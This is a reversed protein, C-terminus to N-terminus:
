AGPVVVAAVAPLTCDHGSMDFSAKYADGNPFALNGWDADGNNKMCINFEPKLSTPDGSVAKAPNVIGDWIVDPVVVPTLVEGVTLLILGGLPGTPHEHTGSMTNDHINITDPDTVYAADNPAGIIQYSAIGISMTDHTAITNGYIEVNHAALLVMGSGTPVSAVINGSPAFNETNNDVIMNDFVRTEAANKIQLGPLNFVLIGGTNHTATNGYVDARNTNEIEIGAVNYQVDNNRVIVDESQGVYLGSDSAGKVISNEVLVHKCQVPYIGYAGNTSKPGATWETRVRRVVVGDVGVMKLQDGKANEFAIDHITFHNAGEVLLGQAGDVQGAFSLITQNMGAGQITVDSVSLSLARDLEYTGAAFAITSNPTAAILAGQIDEVTADAAIAVCTGTVGDCPDVTVVGNDGCAAVGILALASVSVIKM